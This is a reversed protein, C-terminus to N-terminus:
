MKTSRGYSNAEGEKDEEVQFVGGPKKGPGAFRTGKGMRVGRTSLSSSAGVFGPSTQPNSGAKLYPKQWKPSSGTQLTSAGM